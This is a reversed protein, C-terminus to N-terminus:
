SEPLCPKGEVPYPHRAKWRFWLKDMDGPIMSQSYFLSGHADNDEPIAASMLELVCRWLYFRVSVDPHPARARRQSSRPADDGEMDEDPEPQNSAWTDWADVM